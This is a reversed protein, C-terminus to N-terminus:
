SRSKWDELMVPMIADCFAHDLLGYQKLILCVEDTNKQNLAVIIGAKEGSVIFAELEMVPHKQFMYPNKGQETVLFGQFEINKKMLYKGYREAMVGAGYIFLRSNKKCFCHLHYLTMQEQLYGKKDHEAIFYSLKPTVFALSWLQFTNLGALGKLIKRYKWYIKRTYIHERRFCLFGYPTLVSYYGLKNMAVTKNTYYDPLAQIVSPWCECLVPFTDKHWGSKVKLGSNRMQEVALHIAHFQKMRSIVEFYLGVHAYNIREPIEYKEEIQQWPVHQLITHVNLLVAGFLTLYWALDQFLQNGDTYEKTGIKEHDMGNVIVMDYQLPLKQLVMEMVAEEPQITDKCVWLYDYTQERAYQKFIQIVKHNAHCGSPVHIYTINDYRVMWQEVILRTKDDESSDYYFVDIGLRHFISALHELFDAVLQSRNFTPICFALRKDQKETNFRDNEM